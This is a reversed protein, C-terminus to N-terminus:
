ALSQRLRAVLIAAVLALGASLLFAVVYLLTKSVGAPASNLDANSIAEAVLYPDTEARALVQDVLSQNAIQAQEPDSLETQITMNLTLPPIEVNLGARVEDARVGAAQAATDVSQQSAVFEPYTQVLLSILDRGDPRKPEPQFAVVSNSAYTVPISGIYVFMGGFLVVLVVLMVPWERLVRSATVPGREVAGM